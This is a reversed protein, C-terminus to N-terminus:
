LFVGQLDGMSYVMCCCIIGTLLIVQIFVGVAVVIALENQYNSTRHWCFLHYCAWLHLSHDHHCLLFCLHEFSRYRGYKCSKKATMKLVFENMVFTQALEHSIIVPSICFHPSNSLTWNMYTQICAMTLSMRKLANFCIERGQIIMTQFLNLMPLSLSFSWSLVGLKIWIM